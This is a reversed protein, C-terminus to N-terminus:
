VQLCYAPQNLSSRVQLTGSGPGQDVVGSEQGGAVAQHRPFAPGALTHQSRGHRWQADSAAARATCGASCGGAPPRSARCVTISSIRHSVLGQLSSCKVLRLKAACPRRVPRGICTTTAHISTPIHPHRNPSSLVNRFIRFNTSTCLKCFRVSWGTCQGLKGSSQM